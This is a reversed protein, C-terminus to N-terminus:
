PPAPDPEPQARWAARTEMLLPRLASERRVRQTRAAPTSDGSAGLARSVAEAVPDSWTAPARKSEVRDLTEV